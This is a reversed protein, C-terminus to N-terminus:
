RSDARAMIAAAHGDPDTLFAMREEVGSGHRFFRRRYRRFPRIV